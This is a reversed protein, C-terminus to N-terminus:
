FINIKEERLTGILSIRINHIKKGVVTDDMEPNFMDCVTLCEFAIDDLENKAKISIDFLGELLTMLERINDLSSVTVTGEKYDNDFKVATKVLRAMTYNTKEMKM